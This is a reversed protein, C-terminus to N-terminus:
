YVEASIGHALLRQKIEILSQRTMPYIENSPYDRDLTYIQVQLPSIDNVKEIWKAIHENDANGGPGDSFLSQITVHELSKLASIIEDLRIEICPKNYKHFVDETACDLKMIKVDLRSIAEKVTIDNLKTSNSLICTRAQAAYADRLKTVATVIEAFDPHLAPEGNGSFTIYAPQPSISLLAEKVQELVEQRTPYLEPNTIKAQNLKTFGYQCYACNFTCIKIKSSLLNIGLSRGLRRSNVPGYIIGSQLNLIM